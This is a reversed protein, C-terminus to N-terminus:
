TGQSRGLGRVWAWPRHSSIVMDPDTEQVANDQTGLWTSVRPPARPTQAPISSHTKSIWPQALCTVAERRGMVPTLARPLPPRGTLLIM